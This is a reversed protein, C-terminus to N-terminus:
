TSILADELTNVAQEEQQLLDEGKTNVLKAANIIDTDDVFTFGAIVIQMQTLYSLIDFGFKEERMITLPIASIM